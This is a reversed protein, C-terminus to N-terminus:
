EIKSKWRGVNCQISGGDPALAEIDSDCMPCNHFEGLVIKQNKEIDYDCFCCRLKKENAEQRKFIGM